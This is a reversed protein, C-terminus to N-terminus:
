WQAVQSAGFILTPGSFLEFTGELESIESLTSLMYWLATCAQNLSPPFSRCGLQWGMRESGYHVCLHGHGCVCM